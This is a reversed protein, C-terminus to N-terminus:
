AIKGLTRGVVSVM